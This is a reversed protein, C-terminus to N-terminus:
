SFVTADQQRHDVNLGLIPFLDLNVISLSFFLLYWNNIQLDINIFDLIM